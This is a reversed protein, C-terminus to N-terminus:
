RDKGHSDEVGIKREFWISGVCTQGICANSACIEDTLGCATGDPRGTCFDRFDSSPWRDRWSTWAKISGSSCCVRSSDPDFSEHGCAGGACDSNALCVQDTSLKSSACRGLVCAGGACLENHVGCPAGDHQHPCFRRTANSSWGEPISTWVKMARPFACCVEHSDSNFSAHACATSPCDQDRGSVACAEGDALIPTRCRIKYELLRDANGGESYPRVATLRLTGSTLKSFVNPATNTGGRDRWVGSWGLDVVGYGSPYEVLFDDPIDWTDYMIDFVAGDPVASIDWNEVAVSEGRGFAPEIWEDCSHLTHNHEVIPGVIVISSSRALIHQTGADRVDVELRYPGDAVFTQVISTSARGMEVQLNSSNGDYQGKAGYSWTFEVSKVDEPVNDVDFSFDHGTSLQVNSLWPPDIALSPGGIKVQLSEAVMEEKGHYVSAAIEYSGPTPYSLEITASAMGGSVPAVASNGAGLGPTWEFRVEHIGLPIGGATLTFYYLPPAVEIDSAEILFTAPKTLASFPLTM